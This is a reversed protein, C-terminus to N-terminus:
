INWGPCSSSPIKMGLIKSTAETSIGNMQSNFSVSLFAVTRKLYSLFILSKNEASTEFRVFVSVCEKEAHEAPRYRSLQSLKFKSETESIM